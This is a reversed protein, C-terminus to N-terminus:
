NSNTVYRPDLGRPYAQGQISIAMSNTNGWIIESNWKECIANRINMKIRTSDSINYSFFAPNFTYLQHGVSECFDIAEKCAQAAREWKAKDATAPFLLTGQPDTYGSYDP